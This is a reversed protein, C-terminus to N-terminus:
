TEHKVLLHSIKQRSCRSGIPIFHNTCAGPAATAQQESMPKSAARVSHGLRHNTDIIPRVPGILGRNEHDLDARTSVDRIMHDLDVICRDPSSKTISRYPRCSRCRTEAPKGPQIQIGRSKRVREGGPIETIRSKKCPMDHRFIYPSSSGSRSRDPVHTTIVAITPLPPQKKRLLPATDGARVYTPTLNAMYRTRLLQQTATRETPEHKATRETENRRHM